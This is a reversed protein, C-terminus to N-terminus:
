MGNCSAVIVPKITLVITLAPTLVFGRSHAGGLRQRGELTRVGCRVVPNEKMLNDMKEKFEKGVEGAGTPTPRRPHRRTM